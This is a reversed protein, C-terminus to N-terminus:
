PQRGTLATEGIIERVVTMPWKMCLIYRLIISRATVPVNGHFSLSLNAEIAQDKAPWSETLLQTQRLASYLRATPRPPLSSKLAKSWM